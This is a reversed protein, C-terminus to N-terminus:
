ALGRDIMQGLIQVAIDRPMSTDTDLILDIRRLGPLTRALVAAHDALADRGEWDAPERLRVRGTVTEPVARLAVVLANDAEITGILADLDADSEATATVLFLTRGARRQANLVDRLLPLTELFSLWPHGWALQESEFAAHEIGAEALLYSLAETVVSKGAGPAGTIVIATV